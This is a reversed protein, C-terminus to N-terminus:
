WRTYRRMLRRHLPLQDVNGDLEETLRRRVSRADRTRRHEQRREAWARRWPRSRRISFDAVPDSPNGTEYVEGFANEYRAWFIARSDVDRGDGALGFAAVDVEVDLHQAPDEPVRSGPAVVYRHGRGGGVAYETKDIRVGLRVNFATGVGENTLFVAYKSFEDRPKFLHAVAVPQTRRAEGKKTSRLQLFAVVALAFTAAALAITADALASLAGLMTM